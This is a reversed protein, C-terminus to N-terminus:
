SVGRLPMPSLRAVIQYYNARRHSPVVMTRWGITWFGRAWMLHFGARELLAIWHPLSQYRHSADRDIWPAGTPFELVLCGTPRLVRSFQAFAAPPDQLHEVIDFATIVDFSGPFPIGREVDACRIRDQFKLIRRAREIAYESIDVGYTEYCGDLHKLFFGFACGVDVLRSGTQALQRVLRVRRSWFIRAALCDYGFLYNSDRGHFYSRDFTPHATNM